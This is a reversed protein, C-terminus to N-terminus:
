AGVRTLGYAGRMSRDLGGNNVMDRVHKEILVRITTSGDENTSSETKVESNTYNNVEVRVNAPTAQVGLDGAANRKLPLVAESGREGLVGLRSGFAGGHAFKFLTPSSYIGHQLGTGGMFTNGHASFVPFAQAGGRSGFGGFFGTLANVLPQMVLLRTIVKALDKLMSAAFDGFSVKANGLNDIFSNVATNASSGISVAISEGLKEFESATDQTKGKLKDMMDLVIQAGEVDGQALFDAYKQSLITMAEAAKATEQRTKEIQITLEAGVSGKAAAEEVKKMEEYYAKWQASGTLGAAELEGLATRLFQMKPAILEIEAAAKNLGEIWSDFPSPTGKGGGGAGGGKGGKGTGSLTQFEGVDMRARISDTITKVKDFYSEVVAEPTTGMLRDAIRNAAETREKGKGSVVLFADGVTAGFNAIKNTLAIFADVAKAAGEAISLLGEGINEGVTQWSSGVRVSDALEETLASLAPLMGISIQTAIGTFVTKLESMKDNFLEAQKASIDDFVIGLERARKVLAEIGSSGANLLPVLDAGAKGFINMALATKQVGDPMAAFRDAIKGLAQETTDGLAVGMNKLAQAGADTATDFDALGQNLKKLGTQLAEFSVGSQDAAFKLGSLTEVAVGVKQAAKGMEDMSDVAKSLSDVMGSVGKAILTFAGLVAAGKLVSGLKSFGASMGNVDKNLRTLQGNVKQMEATFAASQM